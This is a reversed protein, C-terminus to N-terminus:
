TMTPNSVMPGLDKKAPKKSHRKERLKALAAEHMDKQKAHYEPHINQDIMDEHHQIAEIHHKSSKYYYHEKTM